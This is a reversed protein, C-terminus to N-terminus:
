ILGYIRQDYACHYYLSDILSTVKERDANLLEEGFCAILYQFFDFNDTQFGLRPFKGEAFAIKGDFFAKRWIDQARGSYRMKCLPNNPDIQDYAVDKFYKEGLRENEPIEEFSHLNAGSPVLSKDFKGPDRVYVDTVEDASIRSFPVILKPHRYTLPFAHISKKNFNRRPDVKIIVAESPSEHRPIFDRGIDLLFENVNTFERYMNKIKVEGLLKSKMDTYWGDRVGFLLFAKKCFEEVFAKLEPDDAPKEGKELKNFVKKLMPHLIPITEPDSGISWQSNFLLETIEEDLNKGKRALMDEILLQEQDVQRGTWVFDFTGAFDLGLANGFRSWLELGMGRHTEIKFDSHLLPPVIDKGRQLSKLSLSSTIHYVAEEGFVEKPQDTVLIRGCEQVDRRRVLQDNPFLDLYLQSLQDIPYISSKNQLNTCKLRIRDANIQTAQCFKDFNTKAEEFFKRNTEKQEFPTEMNFIINGVEEGAEELVVAPSVVEVQFAPVVV